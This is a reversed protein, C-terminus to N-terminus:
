ALHSGTGRWHSSTNKNNQGSFTTIVDYFDCLLWVKLHLHLIGFYFESTYRLCDERSVQHEPEYHEKLFCLFKTIERASIMCTPCYPRVNVKNYSWCLLVSIFFFMMCVHLIMCYTDFTIKKRLNIINNCDNLLLIRYLM